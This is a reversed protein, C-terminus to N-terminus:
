RRARLRPRLRGALYFSGTVVIPQGHRLAEALAEEPSEIVDGRGLHERLVGPSISRVSDARTLIVREAIGALRPLILALEKGAAISFILTRPRPFGIEELTFRLAEVSESTHAGDIVAPPEGPLVEARAPLSLGELAASVRDVRPVRGDAELIRRHIEFAIALDHRLAPGLVPGCPVPDPLGDIRVWGPGAAVVATEDVRTVAAAREAAIREIEESAEAPLAGLILPVGPKVIGAKERAIRGLTNGLERTHELGISTIATWRPLLINTADLRGGLGVEFIAWRVQRRRFIGMALATMLEFFSPFEPPGMGSRRDLVPLVENLEHVIEEPRAPEGAVRIRERLHEVHPSTYTGTSYGEAALLAELILSTSGKGKTGGIHISPYALQPNGIEEAFRRMREIGLTKRDYRFFRVREYNTFRALFAEFEEFSEIRQM